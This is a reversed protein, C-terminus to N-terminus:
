LTGDVDPAIPRRVLGVEEGTQAAIDHRLAPDSVDMEYKKAMEGLEGALTLPDREPHQAHLRKAIAYITSGLGQARQYNEAWVCLLHLEHWNVTVTVQNENACPVNTTGCRPCATLGEWSEIHAACETCFGVGKADTV